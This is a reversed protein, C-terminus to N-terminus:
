FGAQRRNILTECKDGFCLTTNGLEIHGYVTLCSITSHAIKDTIDHKTCVYGVVVVPMVKKKKYLIHM